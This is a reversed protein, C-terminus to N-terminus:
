VVCFELVGFEKVATAFNSGSTRAVVFSSDTHIEYASILKNAEINTVIVEYDTIKKRFHKAWGHNTNEKRRQRDSPLYWRSFSYTGSFLSGAETLSMKIAETETRSSKDKEPSSRDLIDALYITTAQLYSM